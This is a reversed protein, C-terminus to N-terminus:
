SAMRQEHRKVIEKGLEASDVIAMLQMGTRIGFSYLEELHGPGNNM